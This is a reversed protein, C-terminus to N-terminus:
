QHTLFHHCIICTRSSTDADISHARLSAAHFLLVSCTRYIYHRVQMLYQACYQRLKPNRDKTSANAIIPVLKGSQCYYLVKNMCSDAAEAM